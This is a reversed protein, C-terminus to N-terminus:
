ILTLVLKNQDIYTFFIVNPEM